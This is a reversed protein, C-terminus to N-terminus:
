PAYITKDYTHYTKDLKELEQDTILFYTHDLIDENKDNVPDDWTLDLHYWQNDVYVYNWVHNDSAIKYNRIGFKELFLMMSDAYGSCIAYGEELAGFATDSQYKTIKKDARDQDYKTHNIIYDHIVKIKERDSMNDKIIDKIIKDVNFDLIYKMRDDYLKNNKITIKGYNNYIDLHNGSSINYPHVFNNINSVIVQNKIIDKIDNECTLYDRNCYFTFEEMGSNVITYYINLLDQKNEPHFNETNQVYNFNYSRTYENKELTTPIFLKSELYSLISNKNIIVITFLSLIFLLTITKKM